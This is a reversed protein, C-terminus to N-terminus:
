LLRGEKYVQLPLLEAVFQDLYTKGKTNNFISLLDFVGRIEDSLIKLVAKVAGSEMVLDRLFFAQEEDIYGASFADQFKEKILAEKKMALIIPLSPELNRIDRCSDKLSSDGNFDKLDDALQFIVGIRKGVEWLRLAVEQNGCHYGAAYGCWSFLIGTKGEAIMRWKAVDMTVKGRADLELITAKTMERIVQIAKESLIRPFPKLLDFAETLLFDGAIVAIANGFANNVSTKGRRKDANDVIDDHLLSAAHIFEAAVGINVFDSTVDPLIMWHYYLCLLPRARKAKDNVCLHRCAKMLMNHAFSDSEGRPMLHLCDDILKNVHHLYEDELLAM